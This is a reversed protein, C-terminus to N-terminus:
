SLPSYANAYLSWTGHANILLGIFQWDHWKHCRRFRSSLCSSQSRDTPRPWRHQRRSDWCLSRYRARWVARASGAIRGRGFLLAIDSRIDHARASHPFAGAADPRQFPAHAFKKKNYSYQILQVNYNKMYSICQKNWFLMTSLKPHM